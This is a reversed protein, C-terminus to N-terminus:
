LSCVTDEARRGSLFSGNPHAESKFREGSSAKMKGGRTAETILLNDEDWRLRKEAASMEDAPGHKLIGKEDM